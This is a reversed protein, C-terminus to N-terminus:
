AVTHVLHVAGLIVPRTAGTIMSTDHAIEEIRAKALWAFASAEVIGPDVGLAETTDVKRNECYQAILEVLFNNKTGGGCLYVADYQQTFNNVSEAISAATLHTLTTQVDRPDIKATEIFNNIWGANFYEKGTSKPPLKNFYPDTLFRQLLNRNMKGKRGWEGKNDYPANLHLDSWYDLLANGPGTDFGIVKRTGSKPLCTINAIGGINIIVRNELNSKFYQQHFLPALPAGQGGAAIDSSRFDTVTNIGTTQAITAGDGLQMTFPFDGDPSHHVTQGHSGIATIQRRDVCQTLNLAADAFALGLRINLEGMAVLDTSAQTTIRVIDNLLAKDYDVSITEIIDINKDGASALVADIGDASTGSMLGIYFTM